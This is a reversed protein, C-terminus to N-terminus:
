KICYVHISGDDRYYDYTPCNEPMEQISFGADLLTQTISAKDFMYHHQLGFWGLAELLTYTFSPPKQHTLITGFNLSDSAKAASSADSSEKLYQEIWTQLDPVIIHLQAGPKM